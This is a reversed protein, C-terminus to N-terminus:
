APQVPQDNSAKAVALWLRMLVRAPGPVPREGNLWRSVAGPTVELRRALEGQSWGKLKLLGLIEQRKM